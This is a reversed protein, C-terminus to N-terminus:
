DVDAFTKDLATGAFPGQRVEVLRADDLVTLAHGGRLLLVMEGQSLVTETCLQWHEDYIQLLVRGHEVYLFESVSAIVREHRRHTHPRVREGRRREQVAVQLDLEPPTFFRSGSGALPRFLM